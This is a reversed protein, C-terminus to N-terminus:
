LNTNYKSDKERDIYMKRDDRDTSIEKVNRVYTM